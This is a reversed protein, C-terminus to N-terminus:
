APSTVRLVTMEPRSAEPAPRAAAAEMAGAAAQASPEKRAHSAGQTATALRAWTSDTLTLRGAPGHRLMSDVLGATLVTLAAIVLSARLASWRADTMSLHAALIVIMGRGVIAIASILLEDRRPGRDRSLHHLLGLAAANCAAEAVLLAPSLHRVTLLILCTGATWFCASVACTPGRGRRVLFTRKGFLADGRVDRFDKLLIRGVFGLYLGGLLALDAPRILSGPRNETRAGAILGLLYPVAVYCAPLLLSALAGRDALRVPRVSYAASILMGTATVLVGPWGLTASAALAVIGAVLGIGTFGRRTVVGANLPRRGPLNIRDIAEDALDNCAVSFLLFGIVVALVRGLSLVSDPQGAQALGTIAFFALLAIVAPRALLVVLRIRAIM